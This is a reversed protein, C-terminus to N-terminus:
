QRWPLEIEFTAGSETSVLQADGGHARATERVIALGLGTGDPRGTVFPEFLNARIQAPAGPGTDCVSIRFRNANRSTALTVTGGAPTHQLANTLLNEVARRIQERDFSPATDFHEMGGDCRLDLVIHGQAALDRFQDLLGVLFPEIDIREPHIEHRSSLTLLNRLLLDLRDIQELVSVLASSRRDPDESALANEARLRMAAIPNRIEHAVGAALRGIAALREVSAALRRAEVLRESSQNLAQVLRDLEREGTPAVRPLGDDDQKALDKELRAIRQSWVILVGGLWAASGLVTFGLVALGVILRDYAEGSTNFVRTMTWGTMGEVPGSLPCAHLLLIQSQGRKRITVSRSDHAAATNIEKIAALEAAPLDTKPGTGEYTPYAYALSGEPFRWIGGEVGRAHGLAAAVVSALQKRLDDAFGEQGPGQWGASFFAYRDAISLCSRALHQEALDAQATTSQRFFAVLVFGTVIASVALMVWLALLRARLSGTFFHPLTIWQKLM